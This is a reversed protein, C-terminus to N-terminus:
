ERELKILKTLQLIHATQNNDTTVNLEVEFQKVLEHEKVLQTQADNFNQKYDDRELSIEELQM